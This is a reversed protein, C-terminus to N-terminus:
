KNESNLLQIIREIPRGIVAKGDKVVIPREILIPYELMVDIWQSDTFVSDKFKEQFVSENQRILEFPSLQLSSLLEILEERSPVSKLYERILLDESQEHLLDLAACSKSCM